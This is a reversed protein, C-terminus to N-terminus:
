VAQMSSFQDFLLKASTLFCVTVVVPRILAAGKELVMRAGIYAGIVQGIMMLFGITWYIEGFCMFYILASMSSTFNLIKANATARSIGYGCLVVFGLTMLTGTGPGFFGDYFGLTPAILVSFLGISIKKKRDSDSVKKSLLFYLGMAILLVPLITGLAKTDVRLLLWGGLVAGLFTTVLMFKHENINIAGRKIFYITALLVGSSGQLKNTALAVTPPMGALLMAPITVLGGGGAVTDVWGAIFAAIFLLAVIETTLEM